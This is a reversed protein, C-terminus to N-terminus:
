YDLAVKAKLCKELYAKSGAPTSDLIFHAHSSGTFLDDKMWSREVPLLQKFLYTRCVQTLLCLLSNTVCTVGPQSIAAGPNGSPGLFSSNGSYLTCGRPEIEAGPVNRTGGEGARMGASELFGERLENVAERGLHCRLPGLQWRRDAWLCCIARWANPTPLTFERCAVWKNWLM